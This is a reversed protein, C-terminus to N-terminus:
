PSEPGLDLGIAGEAAADSFQARCNASDPKQPSQTAAGLWDGLEPRGTRM